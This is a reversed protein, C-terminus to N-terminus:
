ESIPVQMQWATLGGVSRVLRTKVLSYGGSTTVRETVAVLRRVRTLRRGHWTDADVYLTRRVEFLGNRVATRAAFDSDRMATKSDSSRFRQRAGGRLDRMEFAVSEASRGVVACYGPPMARMMKLRATDGFTLALSLRARPVVELWLGFSGPASVHWPAVATLLRVYALAQSASRIQVRNTLQTLTHIRVLRGTSEQLYLGEMMPLSTGM